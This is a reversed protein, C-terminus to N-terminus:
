VKAKVRGGDQVWGAVGEASRLFDMKPGPVSAPNIVLKTAIEINSMGEKVMAVIAKGQTGHKAIMSDFFAAQEPTREISAAPKRGTGAVHNAAGDEVIYLKRRQELASIRETIVNKQKNLDELEMEIERAVPPILTMRYAALKNELEAKAGERSAIATKLTDINGKMMDAQAPFMEVMKTAQEIMNNDSNIAVVIGAIDAKFTSIVKDSEAKDPSQFLSGDENYQLSNGTDQPMNNLGDTGLPLAKGESNYKTGEPNGANDKKVEAAKPPTAGTEAKPAKASKTLDISGKATEEM